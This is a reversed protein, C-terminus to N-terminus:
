LLFVNPRMPHLVVTLPARALLPAVSEHLDTHARSDGWAEMAARSRWRTVMMYLQPDSYDQLLEPGDCLGPQDAIVSKADELLGTVRPEYGGNVRQVTVRTVTNLTRSTAWRTRACKLLCTKHSPWTLPLCRRLAM